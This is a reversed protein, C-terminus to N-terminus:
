QIRKKYYEITNAIGQHLTIKPEWNLTNKLKTTDAIVIPYDLASADGWVKDIPVGIHQEIVSVVDRVSTATGSGLNYIEYGVERDESLIDKLSLIYADVIDSVYILDIKQLGESLTIQEGKLSKQIIMPILKENDKEGYPSFLRFSNIAIKEQYTSLFMEFALKTKAYFNFPKIETNETVPIRTCDYEYFSGTNIFARVGNKVGIELLKAPLSVNATLMDDISSIDDNKKYLTALHVIADIRNLDFISEIPTVDIDIYIVNTNKGEIRWLNSSSRKLAIVKYGACLLAELIHSGIFGTAGTLLVTHM